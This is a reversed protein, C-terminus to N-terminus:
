SLSGDLESRLPPSCSIYTPAMLSAKPFVLHIHTPMSSRGYTRRLTVASSMQSMKNLCVMTSLYSASALKIGFFLSRNASVVACRTLSGILKAKEFPTLLYACSGVSLLAGVGPQGTIVVSRAMETDDSPGEEHRQSCYDYIRVYDQRVWLRPPKFRIGLDLGFCDPGIDNTLDAEVTPRERAEEEIRKGWYKSRLRSFRHDDNLRTWSASSSGDLFVSTLHAM